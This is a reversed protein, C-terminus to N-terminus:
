GTQFGSIFINPEGALLQSKMTTAEDVRQLRRNSNEGDLSGIKSDPAISRKHEKVCLYSGANTSLPTQPNITLIAVPYTLIFRFIKPFLKYTYELVWVMNM